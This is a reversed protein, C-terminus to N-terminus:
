LTASIASAAPKGTYSNYAPDGREYTLAFQQVEEPMKTSRSLERQCDSERMNVIFKLGREGGRKDLRMTWCICKTECSIKLLRTKANNADM